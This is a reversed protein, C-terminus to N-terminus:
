RMEETTIDLFDLIQQSCSLICYHRARSFAIYMNRLFDEDLPFEADPVDIILIDSEIGKIDDFNKVYIKNPSFELNRTSNFIAVDLDYERIKKLIIDFANSFDQFRNSFSICVISFSRFEPRNLRLSYIQKAFWQYDFILNESKTYIVRESETKNPFNFANGPKSDIRSRLKGLTADYFAENFRYITDLCIEDLGEMIQSKVSFLNVSAQNFDGGLTLGFNFREALYKFLYIVSYDLANFEDIIIHTPITKVFQDFGTFTIQFRRMVSQLEILIICIKTFDAFSIILKGSEAEKIHNQILLISFELLEKILREESFSNTEKLSSIIKRLDNYELAIVDLPSDDGHVRDKGVDTKKDKSKLSDSNYKLILHSLKDYLKEATKEALVSYDEIKDIKVIFHLQKGLLNEVSQKLRHLYSEGNKEYLVMIEYHTPFNEREEELKIKELTNQYYAKLEMTPVLLVVEKKVGDRSTNKAFFDRDEEEFKAFKQDRPNAFFYNLFVLKELLTFSKGSGPPGIVLLQERLLSNVIKFQTANILGRNKFDFGQKAIRQFYGNPSSFDFNRLSPGSHTQTQLYGSFNKFDVLEPLGLYKECDFYIARKIDSGVSHTLQIYSQFKPNGKSLFSINEALGQITPINYTRCLLIIYDDNYQLVCVLPLEKLFIEIGEKTTMDRQAESVSADRKDFERPQILKTALRSRESELKKMVDQTIELFDEYPNM